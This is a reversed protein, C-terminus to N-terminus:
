AGLEVNVDACSYLWFTEAVRGTVPDVIEWAGLFRQPQRYPLVLYDPGVGPVPACAQRMGEDSIHCPQRLDIQRSPEQCARSDWSLVELRQMRIRAELATSRSFVLGSLQQPSFYDARKLALWPGVLGQRDWFVQADEPLVVGFLGSHFSNAEVARTVTSRADWRMAAVMVLPGLVIAAVAPQIGRPLRSWLWAALLPLGLALVPLALVRRDFAHQDWRYGAVRFEVLEVAFHQVVLAAVGLTFLCGLLAQMRPRVVRKLRPWAAYLLVFPMWWLTATSWALLAVLALLSVRPADRALLDRHLLCALVAMAFLHAVWGVRWLQLGAPLVLSLGDVLLLSASTGLVLGALAAACWGGLPGHLIRRGYALILADLLLLGQNHVTWGAVFVQGNFARLEDMWPPDVQRLLGDFPEIGAFALVAVPIVTWAAHLWRRDQPALWAWAVLLIGIAQLPHLVAALALAGFAMGLRRRALLGLALLGLSEAMPRATLFPEAYGFVGTVGYGTPLCLVGLWAWYRQPAPVMVSLCYWSAVAFLLVGALGGWLFLQAPDVIDFTHALLWPFVTYRGQDGHLFFLDQGFIGPWRLALGQGLYLAADHDIGWNRRLLLLMSVGLLAGAIVHWAREPIAPRPSGDPREADFDASHPAEGAARSHRSPNHMM